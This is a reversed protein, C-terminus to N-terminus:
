LLTNKRPISSAINSRLKKEKTKSIKKDSSIKENEIMEDVISNYEESTECYKKFAVANMLNVNNNLEIESIRFSLHKFLANLVIRELGPKPVYSYLKKIADSIVLPNDNAIIINLLKSIPTPEKKYDYKLAKVCDEFTDYDVWGDLFNYLCPLNDIYYKTNEFENEDIVLDMLQIVNGSKVFFHKVM